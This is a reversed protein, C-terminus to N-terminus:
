PASLCLCIKMTCISGYGSVEEANVPLVLVIVSTVDILAVFSNTEVTCGDETDKDFAGPDVSQIVVGGEVLPLM